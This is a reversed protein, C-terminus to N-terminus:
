EGPMRTMLRDAGVSAGRGPARKSSVAVRQWGIRVPGVGMEVKWEHRVRLAAIEHIEVLVQLDLIQLVRDLFTIALQLQDLPERGDPHSRALPPMRRQCRRPDNGGGCAPADCLDTHCGRPRRRRRLREPNQRSVAMNGFAARRQM